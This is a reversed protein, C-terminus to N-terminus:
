EKFAENEEEVDLIWEYEDLMDRLTNEKERSKAMIICDKLQEYRNRLIKESKM